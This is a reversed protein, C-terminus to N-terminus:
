GRRGRNLDSEIALRGTGLAERYVQVNELVRQVYNRTEPYPIASSGTSLTSTPIARIASVARDVRAGQRRGRQLRRLDLHLVRRLRGAAEDLVGSRADRQLGPREDPPTSHTEPRTRAGDRCCHAAHDADPRSRRGSQRRRPRLAVGPTRHRLGAGPRARRADRCDRPIAGTPHALRGIPLGRRQAEKAVMLALRENGADEALGVTLAAEGASAVTQALHNLLPAIRHAHNAEILRRVAEAVENKAFAVRDANTIEPERALGTGSRGLAVRALQGYYTHGHVAAAEFHTRAAASAGRAKAARARWYAARSITLSRTAIEALEAFHAEARAGDGLETLALWGAHFAEDARESRGEAFGRAVLDTPSGARVASPSPVRSSGAKSGGPMAM